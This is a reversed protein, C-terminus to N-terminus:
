PPQNHFSEPTAKVCCTFDSNAVTRTSLGSVRAASTTAM